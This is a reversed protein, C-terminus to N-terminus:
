GMPASATEAIDGIAISSNRNPNAAASSDPQASSTRTAQGVPRVRTCRWAMVNYTWATLLWPAAATAISNLTM